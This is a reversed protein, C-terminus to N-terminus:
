FRVSVSLKAAQDKAGGGSLGEYDASIAVNGERWGLGIRGLGANKAIPVGYETFAPGGSAFGLNQAPTTNGFAHQWGLEGHLNLHNAFDIQGRAGLTSFSVNEISPPCAARSRRRSGHGGGDDGAYTRPAAGSCLQTIRFSCASAVAPTM